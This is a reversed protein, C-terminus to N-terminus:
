KGEVNDTFAWIFAVPLLFFGCVFIATANRHRRNSAIWGPVCCVSLAALILAFYTLDMNPNGGLM